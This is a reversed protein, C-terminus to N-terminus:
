TSKLCAAVVKKLHKERFEDEDWEHAALLNKHNLNLEYAEGELWEGNESEISVERREFRGGQFVDLKLLSTDDVDRYVVGTVVRDPFPILASQGEDALLFQAYGNLQGFQVHFTKGTVAKVVDRFMLPGSVFVNM